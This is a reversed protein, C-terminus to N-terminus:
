ARDMYPEVMIEVNGRLARSIMCRREAMSLLHELKRRDAASTRPDLRLRPRHTIRQCRYGGRQMDLVLESDLALEAVKLEAREIMAALTMLYCSAAASLLMEDPNTGVGPGEM